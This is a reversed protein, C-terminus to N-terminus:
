RAVEEWFKQYIGEFHLSIEGTEGEKNKAIYLKRRPEDEKPQYLLLIADADQEIQGSERLEQMTPTAKDSRKLQSLAIVTIETQQALTHLDMSINTTM